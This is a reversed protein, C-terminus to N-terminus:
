LGRPNRWTKPKGHLALRALYRNYAALPDEPDVDAEDVDLLVADLDREDVPALEASGVHALAAGPSSGPSSGGSAPSGPSALVRASNSGPDLARSAVDESGVTIARASRPLTRAVVAVSAARMKAHFEKRAAIDEPTDHFMQWWGIGAVVAFFPWEISYLYSLTNGQAARHIQWIAAYACGSAILLFALHLLLSRPTVWQRV